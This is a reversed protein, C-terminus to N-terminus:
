LFIVCSEKLVKLSYFQPTLHMGNPAWPEWEHNENENSLESLYITLLYKYFHTLSKLANMEESASINYNPCLLLRKLREFWMKYM